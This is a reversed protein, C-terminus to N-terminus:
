NNYNSEIRQVVNDIKQVIFKLEADLTEKNAKQKLEDRIHALQKSVEESINKPMDRELMNWKLMIEKFTKVVNDISDHMDELEKGMQLHDKEESEDNRKLDKISLNIQEIKDDFERKFCLLVTVKEILGKQNIEPEGHISRQMLEFKKKNTSLTKIYHILISGLVTSVVSIAIETGNM